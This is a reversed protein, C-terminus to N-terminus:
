RSFHLSVITGPKADDITMVGGHRRMIARVFPLGMGHSEPAEADPAPAADMGPGQDAVSLVAGEGDAMVRILIRGGEPSFKVANDILNAVARQMLSRVGLASVAEGEWRIDVGRAEALPEYLDAAAAALEDLRVTEFAWAEGDRLTMAENMARTLQRLDAEAEVALRGQEAPDDAEALTALRATARALPTRFDHALQDSSDRLWSLLEELRDLTRNVHVTLETLEPAVGVEPARRSFDGVAARDLTQSVERLATTLRRRALLAATLGSALVLAGILATFLVARGMAEGSRDVVRGVIIDLAGTRRHVTVVEVDRGACLQGKDLHVRYVDDGLRPLREARATELAALGAPKGVPARIYRVGAGGRGTRCTEELTRAERTPGAQFVSLWASLYAADAATLTEATLDAEDGLKAVMATYDGLAALAAEEQQDERVAQGTLFLSGTLAAAALVAILASVQTTTRRGLWARFSRFPGSM